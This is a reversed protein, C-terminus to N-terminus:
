GGVVRDHSTISHDGNDEVNVAKSLHGLSLVLLLNSFNLDLLVELVNGVDLIGDLLLNGIFTAFELLSQDGLIGLDRVGQDQLSGGVVLGLQLELHKLLDEFLVVRCAEGIQEALVRTGVFPLDKLHVLKFLLVSVEFLLGTEGPTLDDIVNLSPETDISYVTKLILM